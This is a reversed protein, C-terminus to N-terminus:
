LSAGGEAGVSVTKGTEKDTVYYSGQQFLWPSGAPCIRGLTHGDWWEQQYREEKWRWTIQYRARDHIDRHCARCLAFLPTLTVFQGLPTDVTFGRSHGRPVVHHADTAPKGCLTCRAGQDLKHARYDERTYHAGISPKGMLEASRADLGKLQRAQIM